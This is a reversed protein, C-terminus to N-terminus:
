YKYLGTSSGGGRGFDSGDDDGRGFDAGTDRSSSPAGFPDAVPPGGFGPGAAAHVERELSKLRPDLHPNPQASRPPSGLALPNRASSPSTPAHKREPAGFDSGDDHGFDAGADYGRELSRAPAPAVHEYVKSGQRAGTSPGDGFFNKDRGFDAGTCM